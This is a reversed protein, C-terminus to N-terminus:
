RSQLGLLSNFPTITHKSKKYRKNHNGQGKYSFNVMKFIGLGAQNLMMGVVAPNEMYIKSITQFTQKSPQIDKVLQHLTLEWNMQFQRGPM